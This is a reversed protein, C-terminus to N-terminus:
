QYIGLTWRISGGREVSTVWNASNPRPPLAKQVGMYWTALRNQSSHRGASEDFEM